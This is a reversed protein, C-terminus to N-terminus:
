KPKPLQPGLPPRGQQCDKCVRKGKFISLTPATCQVCIVRSCKSCTPPPEGVGLSGKCRDCHWAVFSSTQV